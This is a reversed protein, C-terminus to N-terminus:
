DVKLRNQVLEVLKIFYGKPFGSGNVVDCEVCDLAFSELTMRAAFGIELQFLARNDLGLLQKLLVRMVGGHTVVLVHNLSAETAQHLLQEFAIKIRCEFAQLSEAQEIDYEFPNELYHQLGNFDLANVEEYSLGDWVGFDREQFDSWVQVTTTKERKLYYSEVPELCRKAPSVVVLEPTTDNSACSLSSFVAQMQQQGSLSLVAPSHGRLFAGDLCSGHRVLDIRM